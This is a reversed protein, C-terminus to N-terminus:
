RGPEVERWIADARAVEDLLVRLAPIKADWEILTPVRGFLSLAVRYLDWVADIVPGDHTDVLGIPGQSHGALHMQRVSAPPVGHLFDLARFGHNCASVYVNNVDLLIECGTRRVLESIFEWESMQSHTFTMYSSVNELVLPRQLVDQVLHIRGALHAIAEATYPLPLLDHLNEGNVGTWCIHDSVWEPEITQVLQKLKKLYIPDLADVSGINLSVGHLVIPYDGRIRELLQLGMHGSGEGLGQDFGIYNESIAEFFSVRPQSVIVEPIHESRLGIGTSIM